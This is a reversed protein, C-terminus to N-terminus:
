SEVLDNSWRIFLDPYLDQYTLLCGKFVVFPQKKISTSDTLYTLIHKYTEHPEDLPYIFLRSEPQHTILKSLLPLYPFNHPIWKLTELQSLHVFMLQKYIGPIYASLPEVVFWYLRHQDSVDVQFYFEAKYERLGIEEDLERQLAQRLTEHPERKGGPVEIFGQYPQFPREAVLLRDEEIILALVVEQMLYAYRM